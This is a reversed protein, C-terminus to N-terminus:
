QPNLLVNNSNTETSTNHRYFAGIPNSAGDEELVNLMSGPSDLYNAIRHVDQEVQKM